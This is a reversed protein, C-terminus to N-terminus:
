RLRVGWRATLSQLPELRILGEGSQLANPACTMPEVGLGRRRRGADLGDGTYLELFPYRGDVWLEVRAGDPMSLAVTANGADDRALDTFPDDLLQDGIRRPRRFDYATGQVQERRLPLKRQDDTVVRTAAPLELRCDHITGAGPSLYPHQGAGFPCASAGINTATTAVTLGAETLEYSIRLDLSFPYGTLPLLRAGMAISQPSRELPAWPRWRMFGHIANHREPESLAVQYEVDDFRYRGDALRNPWPILPAGHAGDCMADLPYPELVPRGAVVYERVGAGVEVITARQEQHTIEFQRGSPATGSVGAGRERHRSTAQSSSPTARQLTTRAFSSSEIIMVVM